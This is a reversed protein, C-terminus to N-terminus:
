KGCCKKYKKGSGCPCSDNRGVKNEKQVPPTSIMDENIANQFRMEKEMVSHKWNDLDAHHEGLISYYGYATQKIDVYTSFHKKKMHESIEPLAEKSFQHCLAEFIMDQIDLQNAHQYAERLVQIARDSKINEIVSTAFTISKEKRLYPAVAEVVEDNQFQILAHAVEELLIDEDRELLLTLYPIYKELKLLGIIYITLIGRYTFWKKKLEEELTRDMEDESIWGNKVICAALDKAKSYPGYEHYELQELTHLITGYESLVEEKTGSVVLEIVKWRDQSIYRELSDRYKLALEPEISNVLRLGLHIKNMDMNTLNAILIKVAEENFTQNDIYIFIKDNNKFAVELLENTWQEPIAPFDHIARLVTEQILLENSFLHPKITELFTM